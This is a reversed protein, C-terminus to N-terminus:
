AINFYKGSKSSLKFEAGSALKTNNKDAKQKLFEEEQKTLKFEYKFFKQKTEIRKELM